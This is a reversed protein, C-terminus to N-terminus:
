FSFSSRLSFHFNSANRQYEWQYNKSNVWQMRTDLVVNKFNWVGLLGFSADIWNGNEFDDNFRFVQYYFDNDNALREFYLGVKKIGSVWSVEFNQINSGSGIGAGLIEGYHTYGQRNKGNQYWKPEDRLTSTKSRELHTMEFGVHIFQDMRPISILKTLGFIYSRSHEPSLLADRLNWSADARGYEFYIESKSAVMLWRAYFSLIQDKSGDKAKEDKERFLNDFAPFYNGTSKISDSYNQVVRSGGIFLGPVLKPQFSFTIGNLYRWDNVKKWAWDNNSGTRRTPVPPDINSNELRGVLIQGELSGIPTKIPMRSNLSFHAFGRTNNTMILTHNRGPGWWLNETSVGLSLNKFNLRINSQGPLLTSIPSNGFLEPLDIRNWEQDYRKEWIANSHSDPFGDFKKNQIYILEPKLQISLPGLKLFLGNSFLFQYGRSRALSGNNTGYPYKSNYEQNLQIPLWYAKILKSSSKIEKGFNFQIVSSDKLNFQVPKLSFSIASDLTGKLQERRAYEYLGTEILPLSQAIVISSFCLFILSISINRHLTHLDM